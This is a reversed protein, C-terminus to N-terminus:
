LSWRNRSRPDDAVRGSHLIGRLARHRWRAPADYYHRPLDVTNVIIGERGMRHTGAIRGDPTIFVGPWSQYRACSNPASVFMSNAAAMAQLTPRMIVRWVGGGARRLRANHFSHFMLRVGRKLYERYLEYFRVDYCILMGCRMGNLDFVSFHNGPSYYQLDTGTCFRKDYREVIRGQPSIAYLCNHPKKRGMLPHASGVVVWLPLQAALNMIRNTEARLEDWNVYSWDKKKLVPLYGTLAAEHFVAVTAGRRKAERMLEQIKAANYAVSDCEAFQCTAVKIRNRRM